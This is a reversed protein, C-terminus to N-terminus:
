PACRTDAPSLCVAYIAGAAVSMETATASPGITATAARMTRPVVALPQSLWSPRIEGTLVPELAPVIDSRELVLWRVDYARMVSEIVPLPDNPTVIGQRGTLYNYAGPDASMLRDMAPAARLSQALEQQVTRTASWQGITNFTQLAAGLAIVGVAAYTFVATARPANWAPRRQALWGVVTAIGVTVLLFTHPVLAAASHLFTGHPVLVAFLLGMVALLAVGYVLFPWFASDSRRRWAGILAFPALVVVLPLLAFLGVAALLGGLRSQALVGLGQGMWDGLTPPSAFSFLQQYDTLWLLRGSSASPFLSGFVDLQRYLWPAVAIVFLSACAAAAAIGLLRERGQVAHAVERLGVIAFPLGLLVGDSRALTAIGVVFGGLVFARRDGRVARACLWLALAGLTMFLGFNDPQSIFPTLGGPVAVMLGAALAPGRAFGADRGIWWTLPAALAGIIWFALGAALLTPGLLGIFPLQVLEALPMWLANAPVPLTGLAPLQGGIDDLNWIYDATFGHGAALQRAVHVYYFSDPYAPGSFATGAAVRVVFASIFLVIPIM